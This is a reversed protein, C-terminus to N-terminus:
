PTPRGHAHEDDLVIALGGLEHLASQALRVVAGLEGVVALVTELHRAGAVVVHQDDVPHQRAEVSQAQDLGQAARAVLRRHQDQRRHAMDVVADLAQAGAAVVVQRLWKRQGLQDGADLHQRPPAM